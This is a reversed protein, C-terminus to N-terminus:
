TSNHTSITASAPASTPKRTNLKLGACMKRPSEPENNRPKTKATADNHVCWFALAASATVNIGSNANATGSSSVVSHM